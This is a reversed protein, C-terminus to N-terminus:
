ALDFLTFFWHHGWGKIVMNMNEKLRSYNYSLKIEVRNLIKLYNGGM